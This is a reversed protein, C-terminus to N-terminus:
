IGPSSLRHIEERFQPNGATPLIEPTIAKQKMTIKKQYHWAVMM